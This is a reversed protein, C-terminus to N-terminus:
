PSRFRNHTIFLFVNNITDLFIFVITKHGDQLDVVRRELLVEVVLVFLEVAQGPCLHQLQSVFEVKPNTSKWMKECVCTRM